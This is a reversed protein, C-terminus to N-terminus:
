RAAISASTPGTLQARSPHCLTLAVWGDLEISHEVRMPSLAALVHDHRRVLIGSVVLHGDPATLRRLDGALEVLTPALINAVVISYTGELASCPTADVVVAVRNRAANARTAEVAASAIDVARVHAAGTVAAAVAVVGTGCGVDLLTRGGVRLRRLARLSAMTTPHDGLGFAGAPEIVVGSSEVPETWWAPVIVLGDDVWMPRAHDRWTDAAVEDVEVTRSEFRGALMAQAREIADPEDGVATWLEVVGDTSSPREEIARVGLQWLLDAAVDADTASATVVFALM